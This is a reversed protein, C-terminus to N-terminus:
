LAGFLGSNPEAAADVPLYVQNARLFPKGPFRAFSNIKYNRLHMYFVENNEFGASHKRKGNRGGLKRLTFEYERAIPFTKSDIAYNRKCDRYPFEFTFTTTQEWCATMVDDMSANEICAVRFTIRPMAIVNNTRAKSYNEFQHITYFAIPHTPPLVPAAICVFPQTVYILLNFQIGPLKQDFFTICLCKLNEVYCLKSNIHNESQQSNELLTSNM